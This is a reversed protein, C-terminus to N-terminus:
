RGTHKGGQACWRRLREIEDRRQRQRAAAEHWDIEEHELWDIAQKCWNAPIPVQFELHRVIIGALALRALEDWDELAIERGMSDCLADISAELTRSDALKAQVEEYTLSSRDDMLKEYLEGHVHEFGADLADSAEDNEYSKVGWQGM